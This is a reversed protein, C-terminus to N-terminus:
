PMIMLLMLQYREAVATLGDTLIQGVIPEGAVNLVEVSGPTVSGITLTRTHSAEGAAEGMLVSAPGWTQIWFYLGAGVNILPVGIPTERQDINSEQVNFMNTYLTVGTDTTSWARLLGDYLQVTGRAGAAIAEHSKIRYTDGAGTGKVVSLTGEALANTTVALEATVTVARTGAPHAVTVIEESIQGILGTCLKGAVLTETAKAYHFVREGVQLREGLRYQPVAFAQYIGQGAITVPGKGQVASFEPMSM